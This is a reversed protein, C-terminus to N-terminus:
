RFSSMDAKPPLRPRNEQLLRVTRPPPLHWNVPREVTGIAISACGGLLHGDRAQVGKTNIARRAYMSILYAVSMVLYVHNERETLM